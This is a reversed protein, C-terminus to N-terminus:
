SILLNGVKKPVSHENSKSLFIANAGIGLTIFGTWFKERERKLICRSIIIRDDVRLDGLKGGGNLRESQFNSRM